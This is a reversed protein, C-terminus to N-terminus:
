LSGLTFRVGALIQLNRDDWTNADGVKSAISQMLRAEAMVGVYKTVPIDFGAEGMAGYDNNSYRLAPSPSRAALDGSVVRSYYGGIGLTFIKAPWFRAFIPVHLQKFSEQGPVDGGRTLYHLGIDAYAKDTRLPVQVFVGGGVPNVRNDPNLSNSSGGDIVGPNAVTLNGLVGVRLNGKSPTTTEETRHETTTKQITEEAANAVGSMYFFAQTMSVAALLYKVNKKM